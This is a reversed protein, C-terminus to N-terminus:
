RYALILRMCTLILEARSGRMGYLVAVSDVSM